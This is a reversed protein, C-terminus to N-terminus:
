PFIPEHFFLDVVHKIVAVFSVVKQPLDSTSRRRRTMRFPCQTPKLRARESRGTEPESRPDSAQARAGGPYTRNGGEDSRVQCSVSVFARFLNRLLARAQQNGVYRCAM